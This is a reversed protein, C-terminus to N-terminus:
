CVTWSRRRAMILTPSLPSIGFTNCVQDAQRVQGLLLDGLGGLRLSFDTFRPIGVSFLPALRNELRRRLRVMQRWVDLPVRCFLARWPM